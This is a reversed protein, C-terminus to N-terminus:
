FLHIYTEIYKIYAFIEFNMCCIQLVILSDPNHVKWRGSYNLFNTKMPTPRLINTNIFIHTYAHTHLGSTLSSKKM